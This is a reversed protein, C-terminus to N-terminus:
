TFMIENARKAENVSKARRGAFFLVRPVHRTVVRTRTGVLAMRAGPILERIEVIDNAM